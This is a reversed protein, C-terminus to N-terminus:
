DLINVLEGVEYKELSRLASFSVVFFGVCNCEFQKTKRLTQICPPSGCPQLNRQGWVVQYCPFCVTCPHAPASEATAWGSSCLLLTRPPLHQSHQWDRGQVFCMLSASDSVSHTEIPCLVCVRDQKMENLKKMGELAARCLLLRLCNYQPLRTSQFRM